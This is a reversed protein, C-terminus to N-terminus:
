KKDEEKKVDDSFGKRMERIGEGISRSLEPLKKGGFLLLIIVLIVILEEFGLGFMNWEGSVLIQIISHTTHLVLLKDSSDRLFHECARHGNDSQRRNCQSLGIPLAGVIGNRIASALEL